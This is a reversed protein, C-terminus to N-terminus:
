AIRMGRMVVCKISLDRNLVLVDAIKGPTLSGIKQFIGVTQAPNKSAMMCADELPIGISVLNRVCDILCAYGGALSGDETYIKKDQVHLTRGNVEYEGDPMGAAIESDTILNIKARGKIQYVLKIIEPHIHVFDCILECKIDQEALLAGVTGPERHSLPRMANFLHTGQTVGVSFAHQMEEYSADTHGASVCVNAECARKIVADAGTLEPALTMIKLMNGAAHLFRNLEDIDPTRINEPLHAGKYKESFYPGELHIGYIAACHPPLSEACGRLYSIAGILKETKAASLAPVLSTTGNKAEFAAITEYTSQEFDLFTKGQAGHMHTDILGPVVYCNSADIFATEDNCDGIKAIQEGETLLDAREFQFSDNLLMGGKIWM